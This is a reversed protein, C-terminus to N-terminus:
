RESQKILPRGEVDFEYSAVWMIDSRWINVSWGILALAM